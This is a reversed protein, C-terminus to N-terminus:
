ERGRFARWFDPERNSERPYEESRFEETVRHLQRGFCVLFLAAFTGLFKSQTPQESAAGSNPCIAKSPRLRKKECIPLM